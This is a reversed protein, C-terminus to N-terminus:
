RTRCDNTAGHIRQDFLTSWEHAAIANVINRITGRQCVSEPSVDTDLTGVLLNYKEEGLLKLGPLTMKCPGCWEAGFEILVNGKESLLENINKDNINRLM